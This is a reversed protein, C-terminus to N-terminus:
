HKLLSVAAVDSGAAGALMEESDNLDGAELRRELSSSRSPSALLVFDEIAGALAPHTGDVGTDVHGVIVGQGTHGQSWLDPAGIRGVGWSTQGTAEALRAQVPRVLSPM